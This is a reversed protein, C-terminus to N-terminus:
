AMSIVSAKSRFLFSLFFTVTQQRGSLWLRLWRREDPLITQRISHCAHYSTYHLTTHKYLNHHLPTLDSISQLIPGSTGPLPWTWPPIIDLLTYLCLFSAIHSLRSLCRVMVVPCASPSVPRCGVPLVSLRMYPREPRSGLSTVSMIDAFSKKPLLSITFYVTWTCFSSLFFSFLFFDTPCLLRVCYFLRYYFSM